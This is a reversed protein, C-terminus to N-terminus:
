RYALIGMSLGGLFGLLVCSFVSILCCCSCCSKQKSAVVRTPSGSLSSTNTTNTTNSTNTPLLLRSTSTSRQHGNRGLTATKEGVFQSFHGLNVTM